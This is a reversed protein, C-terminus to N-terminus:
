QTAILWTPRAIEGGTRILIARLDVMQNKHHKAGVNDDGNMMSHHIISPM